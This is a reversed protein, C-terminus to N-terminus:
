VEENDDDDGGDGDGDGDGDGGEGEGGGGGKVIGLEEVKLLERFRDRFRDRFVHDSGVHSVVLNRCSGM